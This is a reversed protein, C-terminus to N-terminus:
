NLGTASIRKRISASLHWIRGLLHHLLNNRYIIRRNRKTYKVRGLISSYPTIFLVGTTADGRLACKKEAPYLAIVRHITTKNDPARYAAIEGQHLENGSCQEIVMLDGDKIFPRMSNGGARIQVTKREQLLETLIQNSISQM